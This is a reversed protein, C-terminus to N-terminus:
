KLFDFPNGVSVGAVLPTKDGEEGL